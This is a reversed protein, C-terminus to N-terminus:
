NSFGTLIVEIPGKCVPCSRRARGNCLVAPEELTRAATCWWCWIYNEGMEIRQPPPVENIPWCVGDENGHGCCEDCSPEPIRDGEYAGVCAAENGCYCCKM